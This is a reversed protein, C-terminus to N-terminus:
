RVKDAGSHIDAGGGGFERLIGLRHAEWQRGWGAGGEPGSGDSMGREGKGGTATAAAGGAESEALLGEAAAISAASASTTADGLLGGDM